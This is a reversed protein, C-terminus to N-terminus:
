LVLRIEEFLLRGFFINDKNEPILIEWDCRWEFRMFQGLDVHMPFACDVDCIFIMLQVTDIIYNREDVTLARYFSKAELKCQEFLAKGFEYAKCVKLASTKFFKTKDPYVEEAVSLLFCKVFESNTCTRTEKSIIGVVTYSDCM